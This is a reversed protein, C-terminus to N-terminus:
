PTTRIRAKTETAVTFKNKLKHAYNKFLDTLVKIKNSNTQDILRLLIVGHHALKQHYILEGFDTDSTILVRDENVAKKLVIEDASGRHNEIISIVDHGAERLFNVVELGINEDTILKM